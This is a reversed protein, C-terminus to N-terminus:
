EGVPETTLSGQTSQDEWFNYFNFWNYPSLRAYHELRDAYRQMWQQIGQERAGRPIDIREALLEFHIDYRNGGQYLAFFMIVPVKLTTALIVPGAPFATEEGLFTCHTTKESSFVRDGLIGVLSGNDLHEKVALLTGPKGIPIVTSALDINENELLKTMLPNHGTNMLIKVPLNKEEIGMARVSEFSGLHSGLLLAGAGSQAQRLILDGNNIRVDLNHFRGTVFLLRDVLTGAFHHIHRFERLWGPRHGLIRQLFARSGARPGSATFMFYLTIPYLLLRAAGRGINLAIWIILKIMVPSGREPLAMWQKSM